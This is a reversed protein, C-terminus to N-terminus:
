WPRYSGAIEHEFSSLLAQDGSGSGSGSGRALFLDEYNSSGFQRRRRAEEVGIVEHTLIGKRIEREDRDDEDELEPDFSRKIAAAIAEAESDSLYEQVSIQSLQSDVDDDDDDDSLALQQALLEDLDSDSEAHEDSDSDSEAQEAADYFNDNPSFLQDVAMRKGKLRNIRSCSQRSQHDRLFQDRVTDFLTDSSRTPGAVMSPMDNPSRNPGDSSSESTPTTNSMYSPLRRVQELVSWESETSPNQLHGDDGAQNQDDEQQSDSGRFLTLGGSETDSDEFSDDSSSEDNAQRKRKLAAEVEWGKWSYKDLMKVTAEDAPRVTLDHSLTVSRNPDISLNAATFEEDSDSEPLPHALAEEYSPPADSNEAKDATVGNEQGEDRSRNTSSQAPQPDDRASPADAPDSTMAALSKFFPKLYSASSSQSDSDSDDAFSVHKAPKYYVCDISATSEDTSLASLHLYVRTRITHEIRRNKDLFHTVKITTSIYRPCSSPIIGQFRHQSRDYIFWDASSWCIASFGPLTSLHPTLVYLQGVVPPQPELLQLSPVSTSMSLFREVDQHLDSLSNAQSDVSGLLNGHYVLESAISSLTVPGKCLDGWRWCLDEYASSWLFLERAGAVTLGRWVTCIESHGDDDFASLGPKVSTIHPMFFDMYSVPSLLLRPLTGFGINLGPPLLGTFSADAQAPETTSFAQSDRSSPPSQLTIVSTPQAPSCLMSIPIHKRRWAPVRPNLTKAAQASYSPDEFSSSATNLQFPGQESSSQLLRDLYRPRYERPLTFAM